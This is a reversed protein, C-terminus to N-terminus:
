GHTVIRGSPFFTLEIGRLSQNHRRTLFVSISITFRFHFTYFARVRVHPSCKLQGEIENPYPPFIRFCICKM